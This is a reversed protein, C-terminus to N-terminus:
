TRVTDNNKPVRRRETGFDFVTQVYSILMRVYECCGGNIFTKEVLRM